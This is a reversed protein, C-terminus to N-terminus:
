SVGGRTTPAPPPPAPEPSPRGGGGSEALARSTGAGHSEGLGGKGAAGTDREGAVISQKCYRSRDRYSRSGGGGGEVRSGGGGDGAILARGHCGGEATTGLCDGHTQHRRRCGEDICVASRTSVPYGHVTCVAVVNHSIERAIRRIYGRRNRTLLIPQPSGRSCVDARHLLGGIGCLAKCGRPVATRKRDVEIDGIRRLM